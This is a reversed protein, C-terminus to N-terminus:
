LVGQNQSLFLFKTSRNWNFVKKKLSCGSKPGFYSNRLDIGISSRKQKKPSCGSNPVFIITKQRNLGSFEFLKSFHGVLTCFNSWGTRLYQRQNFNKNLKKLKFKSITTSTCCNLVALKKGSSAVSHRFSINFQLKNVTNAMLIVKRNEQEQLKASLINLSISIPFSLCTDRYWVVYHRM